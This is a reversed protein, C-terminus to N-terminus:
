FCQFRESREYDDAAQHNTILLPVHRPGEELKRKAMTLSEFSKSIKEEGSKVSKRQFPQMYRDVQKAVM